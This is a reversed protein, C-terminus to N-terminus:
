MVNFVDFTGIAKVTVKVTFESQVKPQVPTDM